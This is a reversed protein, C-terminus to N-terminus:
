IDLGKARYKRRIQRAAESGTPVKTIEAYYQSKLDRGADGGGVMVLDADGEYTETTQQTTSQGVRKAKREYEQKLALIYIDPDTTKLSDLRTFEEDGPEILFKYQTALEAAQLQVKRIADQSPRPISIDEEVSSDDEIVSQQLRQQVLNKQVVAIDEESVAYGEQRLAEAQQKLKEELKAIRRDKTSQIAKLLRRELASLKEDIDSPSSKQQNETVVPPTVEPTPSFGDANEDTM